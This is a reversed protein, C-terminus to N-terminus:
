LEFANGYGEKDASDCILGESRVEIVQVEPSQYIEKLNTEM